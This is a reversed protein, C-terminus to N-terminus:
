IGSKNSLHVSNFKSIANNDIFHNGQKNVVVKLWSTILKLKLKFNLNTSHNSIM